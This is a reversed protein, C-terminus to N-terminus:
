FHNLIATWSASKTPSGKLCHYSAEVYSKLDLPCNRFASFLAELNAIRCHRRGSCKAALVRTVDSACGVYGYDTRACRNLRMRGYRASDVLVVEDASCQMELTEELCYEGAVVSFCRMLPYKLLSFNVM